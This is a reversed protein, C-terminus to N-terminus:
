KQDKNGRWSIRKLSLKKRKGHQTEYREVIAKRVPKLVDDFSNSLMQPFFQKQERYNNPITVGEIDYVKMQDDENTMDEYVVSSNLFAELIAPFELFGMLDVVFTKKKRKISTVCKLAKKTGNPLFCYEIVANDDESKGCHECRQGAHGYLCIDPKPVQGYGYFCLGGQENFFHSPQHPLCSFFDDWVAYRCSVNDLLYHREMLLKLGSTNFVHERASMPLQVHRYVRTYGRILGYKHGLDVNYTFITTRFYAERAPKTDRLIQDFNKSSLALRGITKCDFWRAGHSLVIKWSNTKHQEIMTDNMSYLLRSVCAAMIFFIRISSLVNKM